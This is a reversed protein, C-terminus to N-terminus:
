FPIDDDDPYPGPQIALADMAAPDSQPSVRNRPAPRTPLPYPQQPPRQPQENRTPGGGLMQLSTGIIETVYRKLGNEDEWSRTQLRGEIFVQSGKKLYEGAIEGLRNWLVIRHWETKERKEGTDRDSWRESTAINFNAVAAGGPTYRVEPDGGLYGLLIVKNVGAM